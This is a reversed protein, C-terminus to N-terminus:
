NELWDGTGLDGLVSFHLCWAHWIVRSPLMFRLDPQLFALCGADQLWRALVCEFCLTGAFRFGSLLVWCALLGVLINGLWWALLWSAQSQWIPRRCPRLRLILSGSQEFFSLLHPRFHTRSAYFDKFHRERSLSSFVVFFCVCVCITGFYM